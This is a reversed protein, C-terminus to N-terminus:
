HEKIWEYVRKCNNKDNFRFFNEVREIFKDEMICDNELYYKIKDFMNGKEDIVDGFGMDKFDFYGKGHHYDDDPQFYILPKKLYAFDFAVSSYDTILLDSDRFLDQYSLDHSLVVDENIDFLDIFRKDSEPIKNELRPHPKFVFKYGKSKLYDLLERDNLISNINKFYSSNRFIEESFELNNRWTPIFLIQKKPDNSLNDYRPFGLTQIISEDYNYGEELFSDHEKDALTVILALNKDFKRLWDSVNGLTVGHQLFYTQSTVLSNMYRRQDEDLEFFPNLVFEDPHSSIVKDALLYILRHKFSNYKLTKGIKKLRDYESNDEVVFFKRIGDKQKVSYRFLYEANDDAKNTRDMFLYIPKKYFKQKLYYLISYIRRLKLLGDYDFPEEEEITNRVLSEYENMKKYRYGELEFLNDHFRLIHTDKCIFNSKKSLRCYVNFDLDLRCSVLPTDSFEELFKIYIKIFCREYDKLPIKLDFNYKFQWPQELFVEDERVTYNAYKGEYEGVFNGKSDEKVATVLLSDQNFYCNIFGSIYLVNEKIEVIDLWIKHYELNDILNNGVNFTVTDSKVTIDKKGAILYLFFSRFADNTIFENDLVVSEDIRSVVLKLNNLFEDKEYDNLIDLKPDKIIWQIDYAILYQIFLPIENFKAYSYEQLAMFYNQLKETYFEKKNISNDITSSSDFRKRYYYTASNIVGYKQKELLIKNIMISDESTVMDEAFKFKPFLNHKFFASSASLQPNNPEEKLDIVREREFKGQLIHYNNLRGFMKIPIAVMDISEENNDFFLLVDHLTNDSIYDDSDLFNIYKGKAHELGNNRAVAQGSNEQTLVVVNDPYKEHYERCIDLSNDSSGDDVLILQVHDEFNLTQNIVSDITEYLYEGTNYVAIIISFKYGREISIKDESLLCKFSNLYLENNETYDSLRSFSLKPRIVKDNMEINFYCDVVDSKNLTITATFNNAYEWDIGLFNVSENLQLDPICTFSDHKGSDYEKVVEASVANNNACSFMSNVILSDNKIELNTIFMEHENLDDIICDDTKLILSDDYEPLKEDNKLYFLFSILSNELYKNSSISEPNVHKLINIIENKIISSNENDFSHKDFREIIKSIEYVVLYHIFPAQNKELLDVLKESYTKVYKIFFDQNLDLLDKQSSFDFRKRHYYLAAHILGIEEENLLIRNVFLTDESCEMDEEFSAEVTKIVDNRIFTSSLAIQPYNPYENLTIINKNLQFKDNLADDCEEKGFYRIPISVINIEDHEDFFKFVEELTNDSLVDDSDLFNVYKGTVHKLGINRVVASGQHGQSLVTINNPYEKKFNELIELSDDSSGDDVLILQVNELFNVNQNIVSNICQELYSGANYVPIIISFAYEEDEVLKKDLDYQQNNEYQNKSNNELSFISNDNNADDENITQLKNEQKDIVKNLEKILEENKENQNKLDIYHSKYYNYSDSHELVKEKIKGIM